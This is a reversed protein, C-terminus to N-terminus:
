PKDPKSLLSNKPCMEGTMHGGKCGCACEEGQMCKMHACHEKCNHQTGTYPQGTACASLFLTVTLIAINKSM